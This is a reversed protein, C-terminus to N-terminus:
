GKLCISVTGTGASLVPVIFQAGFLADPMAYARGQQIGPTTIAAADAGYAPVPAADDLTKAVHWVINASGGSLSDVFVFAGAFGAASLKASTAASATISFPGAALSSRDITYPM